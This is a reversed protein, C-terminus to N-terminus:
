SLAGDIKDMLSKIEAINEDSTQTLEKISELIENTKEESGKEGQESMSGDKSSDIKSDDVKGTSDDFKKKGKDPKMSDTDTLNKERAMDGLEM